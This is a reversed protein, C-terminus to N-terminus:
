DSYYWIIGCRGLRLLFYYAHDGHRLECGFFASKIPASLVSVADAVSKAIARSPSAKLIGFELIVM